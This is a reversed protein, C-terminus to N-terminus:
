NENLHLLDMQNGFSFQVFTSEIIKLTFHVPLQCIDFSGTCHIDHQCSVESATIM